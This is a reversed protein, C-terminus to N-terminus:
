GRLVRRCLFAGIIALVANALWLAPGVPMVSLKALTKGGEYLPYYLVVALALGLFLGSLRDGRRTFLGLPGGVLIFALPALGLAL